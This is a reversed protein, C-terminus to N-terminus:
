AAQRPPALAPVDKPRLSGVGTEGDVMGTVFDTVALVIGVLMNILAVFRGLSSRSGYLPFRAIRAVAM